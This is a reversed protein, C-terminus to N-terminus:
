MLKKLDLVPFQNDIHNITSKSIINTKFGNNLDLKSDNVFTNYIKDCLINHNVKLLHGSRKDRGRCHVDYYWNKEHENTFEKYCVDYLSGIVNYKGSVPFGKEEFGPIIILNWNNKQTMYHIWGLYKHFNLNDITPNYLFKYYDHVAAVFNKNTHELLNNVALNSIWPKDKIFWKRYISTSIVIVYDNSSIKSENEMILSQIYDNSVGMQSLNFYNECNLKKALQFAWFWDNYAQSNQEIHVGYSDAFVWLNSM